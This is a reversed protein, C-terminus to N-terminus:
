ILDTGLIDLSDVSIPRVVRKSTVFALTLIWGPILASRIQGWLLVELFRSSLIRGQYLPLHLFKALLNSIKLTFSFWWLRFSGPHGPL